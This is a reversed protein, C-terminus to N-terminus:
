MSKATSSFMRDFMPGWQNSAAHETPARTKINWNPRLPAPEHKENLTARPTGESANDCLETWHRPTTPASQTDSTGARTVESSTDSPKAHKQPLTPLHPQVSTGPLTRDGVFAARLPAEVQAADMREGYARRADTLREAVRQELPKCFAAHNYRLTKVSLEQNCRPCETRSQEVRRCILVM